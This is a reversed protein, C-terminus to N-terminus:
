SCSPHKLLTQPRPSRTAPAMDCCSGGPNTSGGGRGPANGGGMNGPEIGGPLMGGGPMIIAGGPTM